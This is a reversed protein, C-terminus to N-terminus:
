NKGDRIKQLEKAKLPVLNTFDNFEEIRKDLRAKMQCLQFYEELQERLEQIDEFAFDTRLKEWEDM